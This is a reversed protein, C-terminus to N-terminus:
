INCNGISLNEKVSTQTKHSLGWGNPVLCYIIGDGMLLSSAWSIVKFTYYKIEHIGM